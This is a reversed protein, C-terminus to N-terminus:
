GTFAAAFAVGVTRVVVFVALRFLELLRERIQCWLLEAFGEPAHGLVVVRVSEQQPEQARPLPVHLSREHHHNRSHVPPTLLHVHVVVDHNFPLFPRESLRLNTPRILLFPLIEERLQPQALTKDM